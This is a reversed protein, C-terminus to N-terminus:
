LTCGRMCVGTTTLVSYCHTCTGLARIEAEEDRLEQDKRRIAAAIRRKRATLEAEGYIETDEMLRERNRIADAKTYPKRKYRNKGM